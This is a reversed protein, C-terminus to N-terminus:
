RNAYKILSDAHCPKHLGCYCALDKGRLDEINDAIHKMALYLTARLGLQQQTKGELILGLIRDFESASSFPNGWPGQRTVCLVGESLAFGKARRRQYRRPMDEITHPTSFV